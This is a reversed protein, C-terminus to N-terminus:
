GVILELYRNNVANESLKLRAERDGQLLGFTTTKSVFRFGLRKLGYNIYSSKSIYICLDSMIADALSQPFGEGYGDPQLFSAGDLFLNEQKVYGSFDVKDTLKSEFTSVGVIVMRKDPNEQCFQQISEWVLGIKSERTM